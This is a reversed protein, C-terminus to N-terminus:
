SQIDENSAIITTSHDPLPESTLVFEEVDPDNLRNCLPVLLTATFNLVLSAFFIRVYTESPTPFNFFSSNVEFIKKIILLSSISIFITATIRAIFAYKNRTTIYFLFCIHALAVSAIFMCFSLKSLETQSVEGLILISTYLFTVASMIVGAIGLLNHEKKNATALCISGTIGYLLLLLCIAIIKGNFLSPNDITMIMITTTLGALIVIAIFVKLFAQATPNM